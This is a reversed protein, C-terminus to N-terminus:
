GLARGQPRRRIGLSGGHQLRGRGRTVSSTSSNPTRFCGCCKGQPSSRRSESWRRKGLRAAVFSMVVDLLDAYSCGKTMVEEFIEDENLEFQDFGRTPVDLTARIARRLNDDDHLDGYYDALIAIRVFFYLEPPGAIHRHAGLM